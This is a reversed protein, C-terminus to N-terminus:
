QDFRVIGFSLKHSSKLYVYIKRRIRNWQEQNRYTSTSYSNLQGSVEGAVAVPDGAITIHHTQQHTEGIPFQLKFYIVPRNESKLRL